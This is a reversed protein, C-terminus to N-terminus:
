RIGLPDKIKPQETVEAGKVPSELEKWKSGKQNSPVKVNTGYGSSQFSKIKNNLIIDLEDNFRNLRSIFNGAPLTPEPLFSVLRKYEQENIQAGSRARLLADMNDRVYSYFQVQQEPLDVLKEKIYGLRGSVPGVYSPDFLTNAKSINEKLSLLEGLKDAVNGPIQRKVQEPQGGEKQTTVPIAPAGPQRTNVQFAGEPGWIVPYYPRDQALPQTQGHIKPDYPEKGGVLLGQGPFYSVDRGDALVGKFEPKRETEPRQKLDQLYHYAQSAPMKGYPTDVMQEQETSKPYAIKPLLGQKVGSAYAEPTLGQPLLSQPIITTNASNVSLYDQLAKQALEDARANYYNAQAQRLPAQSEFQKRAMEDALKTRDSAILAPVIPLMAQVKPRFNGAFLEAPNVYGM